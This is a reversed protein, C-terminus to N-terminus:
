SVPGAVKSGKRLFDSEPNKRESFDMSGPRTEIRSGRIWHRTYSSSCRPSTAERGERESLQSRTWDQRLEILSVLSCVTDTLTSCRMIILNRVTSPISSITPLFIDRWFELTRITYFRWLPSLYLSLSLYLYHLFFWSPYDQSSFYHGCEKPVPLSNDM